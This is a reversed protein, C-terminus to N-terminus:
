DEVPFRPRSNHWRDVTENIAYNGLGKTRASTVAQDLADMLEVMANAESLIAERDRDLATPASRAHRRSRMARINDITRKM